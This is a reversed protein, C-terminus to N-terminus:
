VGEQERQIAAPTHLRAVLNDFFEEGLIEVVDTPIIYEGNAVRIDEGSETTAPIDDSIGTGPGQLRGGSGDGQTVAGDARVLAPAPAEGEAFEDDPIGGDAYAMIGLGLDVGGGDAYANDIGWDTIEGGDAGNRGYYYMAGGALQGAAAMDADARGLAADQRRAAFNAWGLRSNDAANIAGAPGMNALYDMRGARQLASAGGTVNGMQQDGGGFMAMAGRQRSEQAGREQLAAGRGVQTKAAAMQVAAGSGGAPSLQGYAAARQAAAQQQQAYNRELDAMADGSAAQQRQQLVQDPAFSEGYEREAAPRWRTQRDNWDQSARQLALGSLEDQRQLDRELYPRSTNWMEQARAEETGRLHRQYDMEDIRAQTWRPDEGPIDRSLAANQAKRARNAQYASVGAAILMPWM